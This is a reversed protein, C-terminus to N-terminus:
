GVLRITMGLRTLNYLSVSTLGADTLRALMPQWKAASLRLDLGCRDCLAHVGVKLELTKPDRRYSGHVPVRHRQVHRDIGWSRGGFAQWGREDCWWTSLTIEPHADGVPRGSCIVRLPGAVPAGVLLDHWCTPDAARLTRDVSQPTLLKMPILAEVAASSRSPVTVARM